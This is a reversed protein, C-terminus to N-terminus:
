LHSGQVNLYSKDGEGPLLGFNQVKNRIVKKFNNIKNGVFAKFSLFPSNARPSGAQPDFTQCGLYRSSMRSRRNGSKCHNLLSLKYTLLYGIESITTTLNPISDRAEQEALLFKVM